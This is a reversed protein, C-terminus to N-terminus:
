GSRWRAPTARTSPPRRSTRTGLALLPVARHALRGGSRADRPQRQRRRSSVERHLTPGHVIATYTWSTTGTARTGPPQRRRDSVEVGAVLGGGTDAPPARARHDPAGDAVTPAPRPRPSPPRDPGGHRHVRQGRGSRLMLTAPQAGMDALLNVTRRSCARTRRPRRQRRPLRTWHGLGVPHHRRAFVLAGSGARYLDPPPHDDGATVTSATTSPPVGADAGTTTSLHILGAPRFGNDLDEDSEYGVTHPPWRRPRAPRALTAVAPTAGSGSSARPRPSRSRWTTATRGHLGHRDAREGAPRREGTPQVAPRALHRDVGPVPRDQRQGLDGQLLRADPVATASGDISPRTARRGTSRTAASSRSTSARRRPRGRRQGAPRGVLVRRPRRVPLDQPEQAPRRPPRHRHRQHLQRRVRQEGPVPDDPVRQLVPLRPRQTADRTAFPRNYSIKYAGGWPRVPTSTRAATSTTPRGPPTPRRTRRRGLPQLRRARHVPDPQEGGTDTRTLVLSTCARSPRRDARDLVRLGGLQRLRVPRDDADSLCTPQDAAPDTDLTAIQRAGNGQYYGLRYITSPTRRLRDQDQLAITGGVNVSIDTAFGQITADDNGGVDWKSPPSGPKSNECVVPNTPAACPDTASASATREPMGALLSTALLMVVVSTLRRRGFGWGLDGGM